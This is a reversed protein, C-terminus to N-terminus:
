GLNGDVETKNQGNSFVLGKKLNQLISASIPNSGVYVIRALRRRSEKTV